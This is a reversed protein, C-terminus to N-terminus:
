KKGSYYDKIFMKAEETKPHIQGGGLTRNQALIKRADDISTVKDGVNVYDVTPTSNIPTSTQKAPDTVTKAKMDLFKRIVKDNLMGNQVPTMGFSAMETLVQGTEIEKSIGAYQEESALSKFYQKALFESGTMFGDPIQQPQVPQQPQQIPQQEPQKAPESQQQAPASVASKLKSFAKEYGGNSEVFKNFAEIQDAPINATPTAPAAPAPTQAPEPAQAPATNTPQGAETGTPAPAATSGENNM